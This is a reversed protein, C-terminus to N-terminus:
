LLSAARIPRRYPPILVISGATISITAVCNILWPSDSAVPLSFSWIWFLLVSLCDYSFYEGQVFVLNRDVKAGNRVHLVLRLLAFFQGGTLVPEQSPSPTFLQMVQTCGFPVAFM